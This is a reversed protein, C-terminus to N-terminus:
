TWYVREVNRALSEVLTQVKEPELQDDDVADASAFMAIAKWPLEPSLTPSHPTYLTGKSYGDKRFFTLRDALSLAIATVPKPLRVPPSKYEIAGFRAPFNDFLRLRGWFRGMTREVASIGEEVTMNKPIQAGIDQMLFIAFQKKLQRVRGASFSESLAIMTDKLRRLNKIEQKRQSIKEADAQWNYNKWAVCTDILVTRVLFFGSQKSDAWEAGAWEALAQVAGHYQQPIPTRGPAVWLPTVDRFFQTNISTPISKRRPM